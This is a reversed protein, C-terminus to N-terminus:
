VTDQTIPSTEFRSEGSVSLPNADISHDAIARIRSM